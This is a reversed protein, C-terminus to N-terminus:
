EPLFDNSYAASLDDLPARIIGMNILTSQTVEWSRPDTYGLRDADWLKVTELLIAYQLLAAPDFREALDVYSDLRRQAIDVRSANPNAELWADQEAALAEFADRMEPSAILGEVHAASALYAAAPNHIAVRTGEHWGRVMARVLDPDNAITEENTVVGNSVLDVYDAVPIVNVNTVSGCDGAQARERIIIPENNIYITSANIAGTCVVEPANFGIPELQVDRESMGFASLLALIGTYTAGFRGPIGIRQGRLDEPTSIGSESTTVVAIPYEQFWEYVFVVPRGNARAAIVQEGAIIGFQRQGAAILDVGVPEDGHEITVQVSIGEATFHGGEIAVYAPAFQVNPIYTLFLTQEVQRQASATGIGLVLLAFVIWMSFKRM